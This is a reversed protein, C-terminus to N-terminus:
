LSNTEVPLMGKRDGFGVADFCQLILPCLNKCTVPHRAQHGVLLTFVSFARFGSEIPPFNLSRPHGQVASVDSKCFYFRKM